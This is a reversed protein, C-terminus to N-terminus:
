KKNAKIYKVVESKKIKGDNVYDDNDLLGGEVCHEDIIADKASEAESLLNETNTIFDVDEKYYRNAVYEQPVLECYYTVIEKKNKKTVSKHLEISYGIESLIYVDDQMTENWYEMLVQYVDYNNILNM